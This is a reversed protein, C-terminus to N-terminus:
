SQSSFPNSNANAAATNQSNSTNGGTNIIQAGPAAFLVDNDSQSTLNSQPGTFASAASFQQAFQNSPSFIDTFNLLPSNTTRIGGVITAMASRDLETDENLDDITIM